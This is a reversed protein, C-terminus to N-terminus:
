YDPATVTAGEARLRQLVGGERLLVGIPFIAVSKGPTALAADIAAVTDDVSRGAMARWNRSALFCRDQAPVSFNAKVTKLDGRAWAAAATAVHANLHEVYAISQVLCTRQQAATLSDLDTMAANAKFDGPSRVPAGHRQALKRMTATPELNSLGAATRYDRVLWFGAWVPAMRDYDDPKRGALAAAATLRAYLEPPLTESLRAGDPANSRRLNDARWWPWILLVHADTMIRDVGRTDWDQHAPMLPLDGLVWIESDGKQIRWMVPGTHHGTVVLERVNWSPEERAGSVCSWGLITIAAAAAWARVGARGM